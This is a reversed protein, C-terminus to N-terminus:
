RGGLLASWVGGPMPTRLAFVFFAWFFVGGLLATLLVKKSLPEKQYRLAAALLLAISLLYGARSVIILYAAGLGLMGGAYAFVRWTKRPSGEPEPAAGALKRFLSQLILIVSFLILASALLKPFGEAGVRDSILSRPLRDAMKYYAVGLAILFLGAAQDKDLYKKVDHGEAKGHAPM